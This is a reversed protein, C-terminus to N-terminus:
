GDSGGLRRGMAVAAALRRVVAARLAPPGLVVVADTYATVEDALDSHRTYPVALLDMGAPAGADAPAGGPVADPAVARARLAGARDPAVALWATRAEAHQASVLLARPDADAPLTFAAPPGVPRVMGVIRSLRFVRPADRGQDRGVLYWGGRSAILRWPEVTRELVEGTSAARYTFVVVQRAHAADLLPALAPGAPHIRPALGVVADTQSPTAGVVRLKTLARAADTRLSQDQWFEAALALVGLQAASLEMPPLAYADQDVRYGQDDGHAASSVTVVPVGLDRLTDKDREFMREFAEVSGATDYGAVSRRIQEKTMRGTTNVLAIVLNLLREAPPLADPM